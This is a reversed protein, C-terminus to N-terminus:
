RADPGPREAQGRNEPLEALEPVQKATKLVAPELQSAASLLEGARRIANERLEATSARQAIRGYIRAAAIQSFPEQRGDAALRDADAAAAQWGGGGLEAWALGRVALAYRGLVMDQVAEPLAEITQPWQEQLLALLGRAFSQRATGDPAEKAVAEVDDRLTERRGQWDQAVSRLLRTEYFPQVAVSRDLDEWAADWRGRRLQVQGRLGLARPNNAELELAAECDRLAGDLDGKQLLANARNTLNTGRPQLSISAAYHELASEYQRMNLYATGLSDEIMWRDVAEPNLEFYKQWDEIAGRWNERRFRTLGRTRYADVHKPDRQLITTLDLESREWPDDPPSDGLAKARTLLAELDNEDQVLIPELTIAAERWRQQFIRNMAQEYVADRYYGRLKLVEAQDAWAADFDKTRRRLVGRNYWADAHAPDLQIAKSYADIAEPYRQQAALINGRIHHLDAVEPQAQVARDIIAEAEAARGLNVLANAGNRLGLDYTPDAEMAQAYFSLGKALDGAREHALGLQNLGEAKVDRPPDRGLLRQFTAAAAAPDGAEAQVLMLNTYAMLHGPNARIANEYEAEAEKPRGLTQLLQGRKNHLKADGPRLVLCARVISDAQQLLKKNGSRAAERELCTAHRFATWFEGPRKAAALNYQVDEAEFDTGDRLRAAEFHHDYFTTLETQKARRQDAEAPNGLVGQFQARYQYLIRSRHGLSEATDLLRVARRCAAQHDADSGDQSLRESGVAMLFLLEAYRQPLRQAQQRDIWSADFTNNPEGTLPSGYLRVADAALALGTGLDADRQSQPVAQRTRTEEAARWRWLDGLIHYEAQDATKQFEDLRTKAEQRQFAAHVLAAFVGSLLLLLVVGNLLWARAPERKHFLRYREWWSHRRARVPEHRGFRGLDDALEEATAYRRDPDHQLCKLCIAALDPDLRVPLGKLVADLPEEPQAPRAPPKGTLVACLTAGLGFVDSRVTANGADRAQEPAMYGLTGARYANPISGQDGDGRLAKALGFDTVRAWGPEDAPPTPKEVLINDPKIDRHIYGRAHAYAVGRAAQEVYRAATERCEWSLTELRLPKSRRLHRGRRPAAAADGHAPTLTTRDTDDARVETPRLPTVAELPSVGAIYQMSYYLRGSAEGAHYVPVINPHELRAATELEQRFRRVAEARAEDPRDALLKPSILKLAVIRKTFQEEAQWVVGMGGKGIQKILRYGGIESGAHLPAGATEDLAQDSPLPPPAGELRHLLEPACGTLTEPVLDRDDTNV